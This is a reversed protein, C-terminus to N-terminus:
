LEQLDEETIEYSDRGIVKERTIYDVMEFLQSIDNPVDMGLEKSITRDRDGILKVFYNELIYLGALANIVNKLNANRYYALREHKVKNYLPWWNPSKYNPAQQWNMFPQLEINKFRVKQSTINDWKQLITPTYGHEMENATTNGIEKCISKLIVDIESCICQYQKIFENSYVLSNEINNHESNDYLYNDGLEFAIYREIEIFDKELVLYYEWHYKCFEIRNMNIVKCRWAIKM